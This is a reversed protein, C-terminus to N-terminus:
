PGVVGGAAACLRRGHARDSGRGPGLVAAGGARAGVHPKLAVLATWAAPLRLSGGIDSGVHLPGYGAAGAACAGASSGGPNWALNWPNRALPHFSSLGSSLMGWDPMTTKGLLVGGAERVRAAPPGDAPAPELVTAATGSPVPTGRTPINEKLTIPVGDIAGAPTGSEWRRASAAAAIRAADPDAAYLAQVHPELADIRTLVDDLVEVPSLSGDAFGAVLTTASRDAPRADAM